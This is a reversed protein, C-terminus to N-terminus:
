KKAKHASIGERSNFSVNRDCVPCLTRGRTYAYTGRITRFASEPRIIDKETVARGVGSCLNNRWLVLKRKEELTIPRFRVVPGDDAMKVGYFQTSPRVWVKGDVASQYVVLDEETDCHKADYLKRYVGGKFHQFFEAM